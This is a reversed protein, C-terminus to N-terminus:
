NLGANQREFMNSPETPVEVVPRNKMIIVIVGLMVVFSILGISASLSAHTRPVSSEDKDIGRDLSIAAACSFWVLCALTTFALIGPIVLLIDYKTLKM